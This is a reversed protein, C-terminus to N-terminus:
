AAEPRIAVELGLEELALARELRTAGEIPDPCERRVLAPGTHDADRGPVVDYASAHAAAVSCRSASSTIHCPALAAFISAVRPYPAATSRSYPGKRSRGEVTEVLEPFLCAQVKTWGKSSGMTIAPAPVTPSSIRSSTGATSVITTAQPPPPRTEPIAAAQTGAPTRTTASAGPIPRGLRARGRHAAPPQVQRRARLAVARRVQDPGRRDRRGPRRDDHGRDRRQPPQDGRGLRSRQAM